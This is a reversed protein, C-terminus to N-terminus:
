KTKNIILQQLLYVSYQKLQVLMKLTSTYIKVTYAIVAILMISVTFFINSYTYWQLFLITIKAFYKTVVTAHSDNM